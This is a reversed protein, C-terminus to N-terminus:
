ETATVVVRSERTEVTVKMGDFGPRFHLQKEKVGQFLGDSALHAIEGYLAKEIFAEEMGVPRVGQAEEGLAVIEGHCLTHNMGMSYVHEADLKNVTEVFGRLDLHARGIMVMDALDVFALPLKRKIQDPAPGIDMAELGYHIINWASEPVHNTDTMWLVTEEIVFALCMYPVKVSITGQAPELPTGPPSAINGKNATVTMPITVNTTGHQVEFPVLDQPRLM